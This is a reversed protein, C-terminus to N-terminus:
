IATIPHRKFLAVFFAKVVDAADAKMLEAAGFRYVEYGSLRLERDAAMMRAYRQPEAHGQADAYHQKGDVEIVIRVGHPLLLLFDMRSHLLADKGRAAITKPDWHLWVEPLLAPLDPIAPGFARHYADFLTRQPPSTQPLSDLLRRYLSGKAMADDSIDQTEAWWQQLDRWRLGDWGISRDYVLVKDAGSLIEVENDIADSLRLDPKVQSAFILNKPRARSRVGSSGLAFCPYGDRTGTEWFEVGEKRLADNILSVLRRQAQEDPNVEGSVLGELFLSFRRDSAEFAGLQDFLEEISWDPNRLFHQDIESRLTKTTLGLMESLPDDDLVWLDDLLKLFRRADSFLEDSALARAVDRRCRKTIEPFGEYNWLADQLANREEATISFSQLLRKAVDALHDDEIASVCAEMRERKSGAPDPTPLGLRGCVSSIGTHTEMTGIHFVLSSVQRRLAELDM